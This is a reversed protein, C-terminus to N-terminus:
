VTIIDVRRIERRRESEPRWFIDCKSKVAWPEKRRIGTVVRILDDRCNPSLREASTAENLKELIVLPVPNASEISKNSSNIELDSPIVVSRPHLDSSRNINEPDSLVSDCIVPSILSNLFCIVLVSFLVRRIKHAM